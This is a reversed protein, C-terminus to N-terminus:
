QAVDKPVSWVSLRSGSNFSGNLEVTPTSVSSTIYGQTSVMLYDTPSTSRQFDANFTSNIGPAEAVFVEGFLLARGPEATVFIEEGSARWSPTTQIETSEIVHYYAITANDPFRLKLTGLTSIELDALFRMGSINTDTSEVRLTTQGDSSAIDSGVPNWDQAPVDTGSSGVIALFTM